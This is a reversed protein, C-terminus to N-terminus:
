RSHVERQLYCLTCWAYVDKNNGLLFMKSVSQMTPNSNISIVLSDNASFYEAEKNLFIPYQWSQEDHFYCLFLCFVLVIFLSMSTCNHPHLNTPLLTTYLICCYYKLEYLLLLQWYLKVFSARATWALEMTHNQATHFM